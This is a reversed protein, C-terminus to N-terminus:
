DLIRHCTDGPVFTVPLIIEKKSKKGKENAVIINLIEHAIAYLDQKISTIKPTFFDNDIADIGCVSIDEPIRVGLSKARTIFGKAMEDNASIIATPAEPLSYFYDFADIGSKATFDGGFYYEDPITYGLTEMYSNFFEKRGLGASQWAGGSIFGIRTHGLKIIYDVLMTIAAGDDSVINYCDGKIKEAKDLLITPIKTDLSEMPTLGTLVFGACGLKDYFAFMSKEIEHVGNSCCASVYYGKENALLTLIRLVEMSFANRTDSIFYVIVKKPSPAVKRPTYGQEDMIAKIKELTAEKVLEPSRLARSVTVESINALRAIDKITLKSM